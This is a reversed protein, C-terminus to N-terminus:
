LLTDITPASSTSAESSIPGIPTQLGQESTASGGKTVTFGCGILVSNGIEDNVQFGVIKQLPIRFKEFVLTLLFGYRIGHDKTTNAIKGIHNIMIVPLNIQEGQDLLDIYCMDIPDVLNRRQGRPIINKIV